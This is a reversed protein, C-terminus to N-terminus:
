VNSMFTISDVFFCFHIESSTHENKGPYTQADKSKIFVLGTQSKPCQDAQSSATFGISVGGGSLSVSRSPLVTPLPAETGMTYGPYGVFSLCCPSSAVTGTLTRSSACGLVGGGSSCLHLDRHPKLGTGDGQQAGLVVVVLWSLCM